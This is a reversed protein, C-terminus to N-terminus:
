IEVETYNLTPARNIIKDGEVFVKSGVDYTVESKVDFINNSSTKVTHYNENYGIVEVIQLNKNSLIRSLTNWTNM